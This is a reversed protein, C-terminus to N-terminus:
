ERIKEMIGKQKEHFSNLRDVIRDLRGKLYRLEAREMITFNAEDSYSKKLLQICRQCDEMFIEKGPSTMVNAMIGPVLENIAKLEAQGKRGFREAYEALEALTPTFSIDPKM